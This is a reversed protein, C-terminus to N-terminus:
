RSNYLALVRQYATSHLTRFFDQDYDGGESRDARPNSTFLAVYTGHPIVANGVSAVNKKHDKACDFPFKGCLLSLYAGTFVTNLSEHKQYYRWQRV